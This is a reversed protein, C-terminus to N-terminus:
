LADFRYRMEPDNWCTWHNVVGSGADYPCQNPTTGKHRLYFGGQGDPQLEFAMNPDSWCGWNRVTGGDVGPAIVYLCKSSPESALRWYGGGAAVLKYTMTTSNTCPASGVAGGNTANPTICRSRNVHRIRGLLGNVPTHQDPSWALVPRSTGSGVAQNWQFVPPGSLSSDLVLGNFTWPAQIHPDNLNLRLWYTPEDDVALWGTTLPTSTCPISTVNAIEGGTAPTWGTVQWCQNAADALRPVAVLAAVLSCLSVLTRM